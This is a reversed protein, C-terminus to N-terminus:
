IAKTYTRRSDYDKGNSFLLSVTSRSMHFDHDIIMYTDASFCGCACMLRRVHLGPSGVSAFRYGKVHHVDLILPSHCKVCSFANNLLFPTERLVFSAPIFAFRALGAFTPSKEPVLLTM